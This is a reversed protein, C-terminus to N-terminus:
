WERGELVDLYLRLYSGAMIERSFFREVRERCAKPEIEGVMEVAKVMEEVSDCIYGTVGDEV